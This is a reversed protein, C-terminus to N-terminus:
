RLFHCCHCWHCEHKPQPRGCLASGVAFILL